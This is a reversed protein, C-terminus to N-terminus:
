EDIKKKKWNKKKHLGVVTLPAEHKIIFIRTFDCVTFTKNRTVFFFFGLFLVYQETGASPFVTNSFYTRAKHHM